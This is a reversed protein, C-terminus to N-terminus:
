QRISRSRRSPPPSPAGAGAPWRITTEGRRSEAPPRLRSKERRERERYCEEHVDGEETRFRGRGPPIPRKCIVCIAPGHEEDAQTYATMMIVSVHPDLARLAHLTQVGNLGPMQVDMVIVDFRSSQAKEIAARGASAMSTEYGTAAFVDSLTDLMGPDDDHRKRYGRRHGRPREPAAPDARESHRGLAHGPHCQLHCELTTGPENMPFTEYKSRHVPTIKSAVVRIGSNTCTRLCLRDKVRAHM